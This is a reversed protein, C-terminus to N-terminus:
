GFIRISAYMVPLSFVIGDFRDLFGGHGPLLSGSDKKDFARKMFSECLDGVQSVAGVLLPIFFAAGWPMARFFALKYIFVVVLAAALGGAAGEM